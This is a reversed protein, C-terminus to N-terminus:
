LIIILSPLTVIQLGGPAEARSAIVRAADLTQAIWTSLTARGIM